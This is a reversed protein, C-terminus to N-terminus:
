SAHHGEVGAHPLSWDQSRAWEEFTHWGVGPYERRLAAIDAAYGTRNFWEYMLPAEEGWERIIQEMPVQSFGIEQGTVVSIIKAVEDGTLEDSAVNLRKGLFQARNELVLAEFAAADTLAVHQLSRDGPMAIAFTGQLLAPLHLPTLLNEMLFVPGVITHPIGRDRIHTEVRFKSEFHPIGTDRDADSVSSYVLHEVQAAEAADAMNIGQQTEGETGAEFSTSVLFVADMGQAARTLSLVDEFDGVVLESGLRQLEQARPSDLRRTLARVRHGRGILTRALAGGWTGTAGTVLVSLPEPSGSTGSMM